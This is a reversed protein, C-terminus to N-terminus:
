VFASLLPLLRLTKYFVIIELVMQAGSLMVLMKMQRMGVASFETAALQSGAVLAPSVSISGCVAKTLVSFKLFYETM